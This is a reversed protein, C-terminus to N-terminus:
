SPWSSRCRRSRASCPHRAAAPHGQGQSGPSPHRPARDRQRHDQALRRGARRCGLGDPGPRPLYDEIATPTASARSASSRRSRPLAATVSRRPPRRSARTSRRRPTSSARLARFKLPHSWSHTGVTHGPTVFVSARRRSLGPWRPRRHFLQGARMALRPHRPDPQHLAAASRRRLDARGRPRRLPLTEAYDMTGIRGHDRPDVVITRSTGIAHPNGPCEAANAIRWAQLVAGIRHSFFTAIGRFRWGM